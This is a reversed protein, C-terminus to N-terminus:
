PRLDACALRAGTSPEHLVVSQADYRAVHRSYAKGQGVTGDASTLVTPWIENFTDVPGGEVIAYHGGGSGTACNANHVHSPYITNPQLEGTLQVSAWTGRGSIRRVEATGSINLGAGDPLLVFTGRTTVDGSPGLDACALKAGDLPDHIVMSQAEVRAFHGLQNTGGFGLGGLGTTVAPWMENAEIAQAVTPELKYHGGGIADSCPKEHVHAPFTTNSTANEVWIMASSDGRVNRVLAAQGGFTFRRDVGNTTLKFDGTRMTDYSFRLLDQDVRGLEFSACALRANMDQPDHVVVSWADYRAVHPAYAEGSGYGGGVKVVKLEPWIENDALTRPDDRDFKYHAGGDMNDCPLAHVHAPYILNQQLDGALRIHVETGGSSRTMFATGSLNRDAGDALPVFQGEATLTANPRLDICAIRTGGVDPEHIVISHADVRAVHVVEAKGWGKGDLGVNVTPWIENAEVTGTVSRDIKYHGGGANVDCPMDHVHAMYTTSANLGLVFLGVNTKGVVPDRILFASGKLSYGLNVGNSTTTVEGAAFQQPADRLDRAGEKIWRSLLQYSPHVSSPFLKVPHPEPSGVLLNLLLLSREPSTTNLRYPEGTGGDDSPTTRTLMHILEGATGGMYLGGPANSPDVGQIHCAQCKLGGESAPNTLLPRVQNVFSVPLLPPNRNAGDSIWQRIVQYAREQPSAFAFNPHVQDGEGEYLPRTLLLSADPSTVNVRMTNTAPDLAAYAQAPGGYLNLGGAPTAGSQDGHCNQCGLGGQDIPLFLPYIQGDFDVTNPDPSNPPPLIGTEKLEFWSVGEPRFVQLEFPGFARNGFQVSFGVGIGMPGDAQPIEVFVVFLGGSQGDASVQSVVSEGPTGDPELFHPGNVAAVANNPGSLITFDAQSVGAVPRPTVAVTGDDLLRGVAIGYVCQTASNRSCAFSSGLSVEYAQAISSIWANEVLPVDQQLPAAGIAIPAYTPRYGQRNAHFVAQGNASANMQYAGQADTTATAPPKLGFTLVTAGEIPSSVGRLYDAMNVVRGSVTVERLPPVGADPPVGGDPLPQSGDPGGTGADEAPAVDEASSCAACVLATFTLLRYRM